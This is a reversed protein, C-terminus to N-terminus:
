YFLIVGASFSHYDPTGKGTLLKYPSYRAYVGFSGLTLQGYLDITFKRQSISATYYKRKKGEEDRWSTQVSGHPNANFISGFSIGPRLSGYKRFTKNVLLPFQVSFVKIRSYRYGELKEDSIYVHDDIVEYVVGKTSRYNRWDLGVGLSITWNQPLQKEVGIVNLWGIEMSKGMDPSKSPGQGPTAVFGFTLGGCILSWGNCCGCSIRNFRSTSKATWNGGTETTYSYVDGFADTVEATVGEPNEVIVLSKPSQFTVVTDEREAGKGRGVGAALAIMLLIIKTKM